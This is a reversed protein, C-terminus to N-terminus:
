KLLTIISAIANIISLVMAIISFILAVVVSYRQYIEERSAILFTLVNDKARDFLDEEFINYCEIEVNEDNPIINMVRLIGIGSAVAKQPEFYIRKSQKPPIAPISQILDYKLERDGIPYSIQGKIHGGNFITNGNTLTLGLRYKEGVIVEKPKFIYCVRKAESEVLHEALLKCKIKEPTKKAKEKSM